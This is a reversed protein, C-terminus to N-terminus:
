HKVRLSLEGASYRYIKGNVSFLLQGQEDIGQVIGQIKQNSMILEARKGRYADFQQWEELISLAHVTSCNELILYIQKVLSAALKNRSPLERTIAALDIWPQDPEQKLVESFKINIGIGIIIDYPGGGEGRMELLVGGLKRFDYVIDNPWKLQIKASVHNNLARIIGVGVMLSLQSLTMGSQELHLGLSMYLGCGFPSIWQRGRRGRGTTQYDAIVVHRDIGGQDINALLYNNTSDLVPVLEIKKCLVDDKDNVLRRIETENLVDYPQALRYGKGRVKYIDLDYSQLRNIYKWIATRSVGLQRALVEGSHFNGDALASLVSYLHSM